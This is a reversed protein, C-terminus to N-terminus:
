LAKHWLWEAEPMFPPMMSTIQRSDAENRQHRGKSCLRMCNVAPSSSIQSGLKEIYGTSDGRVLAWFLVLYLSHVDVPRRALNVSERRAIGSTSVTFIRLGSKLSPKIKKM